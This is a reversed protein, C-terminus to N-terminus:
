GARLVANAADLVQAVGPNGRATSGLAAVQTALEDRAGPERASIALRAALVRRLASRARFADNDPLKALLAADVEKGRTLTNAADRSRPDACWLSLTWSSIAELLDLREPQRQLLAEVISLADRLRPAAEAGRGLQAMAVGLDGTARALRLRADDSEPHREVLTTTLGHMESLDRVAEHDPMLDRSGAEPADFDVSNQKDM